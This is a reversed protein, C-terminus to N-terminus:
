KILHNLAKCFCMSEDRNQNVHCLTMTWLLSFCYVRLVSKFMLRTLAKLQGHSTQKIDQSEKLFVYIVIILSSMNGPHGPYGSHVDTM